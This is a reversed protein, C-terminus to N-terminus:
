EFKKIYTHCYPRKGNGEYYDQHYDEAKWFKSAPLLETAVNVGKNELIKILKEATKKQQENKYFIASKYQEGIDPGQGNKQSPDHMEFFLKALEEFNTEKPNFIVEVAEKHGTKGSCVEKYSPNEISGGIYGCDTSIVGKAKQMYYETGWFCGSAFIATDTKQLGDEPIFNMSISNVCHRTNKETFREGTFVHGLHAGCNACLIETRSGDSDTKRAVAGPLEDDFAPWGCHANFKDDSKYLPADCRKCTYTGKEYFNEYIGSFPAETGKHIIVREEEPKLKNYAAEQGM